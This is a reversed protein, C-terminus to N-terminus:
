KSKKEFLSKVMASTTLVKKGREEFYYKDGEKHYTRKGVKKTIVEMKTEGVPKKIKKAM